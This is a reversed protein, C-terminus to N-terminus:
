HFCVLQEFILPSVLLLILLLVFATSFSLLAGISGHTSACLWNFFLPSDLLLILSLECVTLGVFACVCVCVYEGGGGCVCVCV